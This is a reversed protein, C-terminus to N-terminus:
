SRRGALDDILTSVRRQFVAYSFRAAASRAANESMRGRLNDDSLIRIVAAAVAAPSTPDVILGTIEHEIVEPTADRDGGIAPVGHAMAEAFVFGFGEVTSPMIFLTATAYLCRLTEDSVIGHFRVNARLGKGDVLQELLPRRDGDGVIHYITDPFRALIEPLAAIVVEHGKHPEFM